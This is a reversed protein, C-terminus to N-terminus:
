CVPMSVYIDVDDTSTGHADTASFTLVATGGGCNFPLDTSPKWSIQNGTGITKTLSGWKVSWTGSPTETGDPDIASAKLTYTTNEDLSAGQDPSLISVIPPANLPPDVVQFSRQVTSTAGFADTATVKVTRAGNSAFTFQPQCGTGNQTPLGSGTIQWEIASCEIMLQNPDTITAELKIPVGRYFKEGQTPHVVGLSPAGNTGHVTISDTGSQGASNTAKVTVKRDGPSTLLAGIELGNGLPGDKDSSWSVSSPSNDYVTWVKAKLPLGGLGGYPGETASSPDIKVLPPYTSSPWAWKVADDAHVIRSVHKDPSSSATAKLGEELKQPTLNPNAALMMAAVGAVFPSSFSTGSVRHNSAVDGDPGVWTTFPAFMDVDSTKANETWEYGYNSGADRRRDSKIGGVCLVADNECPAIWEEEWCVIFCDEADVDRGDNGASAVVLAGQEEAEQTADEYPINAWSVLADLEYGISMNIVRAGAEFAEYIGDIADFMTPGDLHVAQVDAVQGGTGAVGLGNDVIGGLTSSVNTGHWNCQNGGSCSMANPGAGWDGSRGGIDNQAGNTMAFGGDVVAVKVRRQDAGTIKLTRWAEGTQIVGAADNYWRSYANTDSSSDHGAETTSRDEVAYDDLLTNPSVKLGKTAADAIVAILRLGKGDSLKANGRAAPDLTRLDASLGSTDAKSADIRLLWTDDGGPKKAAHHELITGKWKKAFAEVAAPDTGSVVVEDSVFELKAEGSLASVQRTGKGDASPISKTEHPVNGVTLKPAPLGCSKTKKAHAAFITQQATRAEDAIAAGATSKAPTSYRKTAKVVGSLEKM